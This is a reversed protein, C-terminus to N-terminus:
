PRFVEVLREHIEHFGRGYRALDWLEGALDYISGGAGCGFCHWRTDFLSCSPTREDHVPCCIYRGRREVDPLLREAYDASPIALLRDKQAEFGDVQVRRGRQEIARDRYARDRWRQGWLRVGDIRHRLTLPGFYREWFAAFTLGLESAEEEARLTRAHSDEARRRIEAWFATRTEAPARNFEAMQEAGTRQAEAYAACFEEIGRSGEAVM